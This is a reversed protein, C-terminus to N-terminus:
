HRKGFRVQEPDTYGEVSHRASCEDTLINLFQVVAAVPSALELDARTKEPIESEKKRIPPTKVQQKTGDPSGGNGRSLLISSEM